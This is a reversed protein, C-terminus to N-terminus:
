TGKSPCLATGTSGQDHKCDKRDLLKDSATLAAAAAARAGGGGGGGGYIGRRAASATFNVELPLVATFPAAESQRVAAM